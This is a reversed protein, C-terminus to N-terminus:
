TEVRRGVIANRAAELLERYNSKFPVALRAELIAELDWLVRQEAPHEFRLEESENVRALWEFLVLAEHPKLSIEVPKESEGTM